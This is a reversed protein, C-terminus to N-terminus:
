QILKREGKSAALVSGFTKLENRDVQRARSVFIGAAAGLIISFIILISIVIAVKEYDQVNVRFLGLFSIRKQEYTSERAQPEESFDIQMNEPSLNPVVTTIAARLLGASVTSGKVLTGIVTVQHPENATQVLVKVNIIAPLVSLQEEILAAKAREIRLRGLERSAPFLGQTELLQSSSPSEKSPLGREKILLISKEYDSAHVQLSFKSQGGKARSLGAPIGENILVALVETAQDQSLDFLVDRENCGAVLIALTITFLIRALNKAAKKFQLHHIFGPEIM